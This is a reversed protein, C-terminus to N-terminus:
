RPSSSTTSPRAPRTASRRSTTSRSASPGPSASRRRRARGQLVTKADPGTLLLKRWRAPTPRGRAARPAAARLTPHPLSRSARTSRRGRRAPAGTRAPATSRTRPRGHGSAPARRARHGADPHTTPSRSCCARSRSGTPSATTCARLRDGDREGYGDVLYLDWLPKSRDLPTSADPRRRAGPARAPRRAGAPRPPPHPPRPRLAPRGGVVAVGRWAAARVVRQRFRPFREVLRARLDGGGRARPRGARRVVAGRQRGDPEDAPGHAALGRRRQEDAATM